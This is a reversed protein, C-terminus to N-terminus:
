PSGGRATIAAQIIALSAAARDNLCDAADYVPPLDNWTGALPTPSPAAPKPPWRWASQPLIVYVNSLQHRTGDAHTECRRTWTVIGSFKLNALATIVRRPSYRSAAAIRAHSPCLVGRRDLLDNNFLLENLVALEVRGVGWARKAAFWIKGRSAKDPRPWPQSGDEVSGRWVPHPAGTNLRGDWIQGHPYRDLRRLVGPAGPAPPIADFAADGLRLRLQEEIQRVYQTEFIRHINNHQKLV